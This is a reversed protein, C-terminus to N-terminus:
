KIGVKGRLGGPLAIDSFLFGQINDDELGYKKMTVLNDDSIVLQVPPDFLQLTTILEQDLNEPVNLARQNGIIEAYNLDSKKSELLSILGSGKDENDVILEVNNKVGFITFLEIFIGILLIVAVCAGIIFMLTQLDVFGKSKSM